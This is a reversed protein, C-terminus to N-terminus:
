DKKVGLFQGIWEAIECCVDKRNDEQQYQLIYYDNDNRKVAYVYDSLQSELVNYSGIIKWSKFKHENNEFESRANSGLLKIM